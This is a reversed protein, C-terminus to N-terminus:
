KNEPVGTTEDFEYYINSKISNDGATMSRTIRCIPQALPLATPSTPPTPVTPTKEEGTENVTNPELIIDASPTLIEKM